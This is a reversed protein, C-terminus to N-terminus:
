LDRGMGFDCPPFVYRLLAGLGCGTGIDPVTFSDENKGRRKGFVTAASCWEVIKKAEGPVVEKRKRRPM